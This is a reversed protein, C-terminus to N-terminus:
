EYIGEEIWIRQLMHWDEPHEAIGREFTSAIRQVTSSIDKSEDGTRDVEISHFDIHIGISTYSVHAVVLPLGEKIALVAPGAPM